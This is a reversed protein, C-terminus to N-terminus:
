VIACGDATEIQAVCTCNSEVSCGLTCDFYMTDGCRDVNYTEIPGPRANAQVTGRVRPAIPATEFSEVQLSELKLKRM